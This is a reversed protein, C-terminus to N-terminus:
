VIVRWKSSLTRRREDIFGYLHQLLVGVFDAADAVVSCSIPNKPSGSMSAQPAIDVHVVPRPSPWLDISKCAAREDFRCGIAILLDCHQMAWNATYLGHVGIPGLCLPHDDSICGQM